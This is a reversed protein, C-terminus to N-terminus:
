DMLFNQVWGDNEFYFEEEKGLYLKGDKRYVPVVSFVWDMPRAWVFFRVEQEIIDDTDAQLIHEGYKNQIEEYTKEEFDMLSSYYTYQYRERGEMDKLYLKLTLDEMNRSIMGSRSNRKLRHILVVEEGSHTFATIRYPLAPDKTHIVVDAFGYKKDKLYKLAGDVCTMKLEFDRTLDGRRRKFQITKGPVFEKIADRFILIKCSQGTLKIISYEELVEEEYLHEMFRKIIGYIDAKLLLELEYISLYVTPFEKIIGLGNERYGSMKWKDVPIWTTASDRIRQSSIGVRLTGVHNYFEKKVIEALRFLFYFNNKM